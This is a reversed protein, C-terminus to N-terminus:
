NSHAYRNDKEPSQDNDLRPTGELSRPELEELPLQMVAYVAYVWAFVVLFQTSTPSPLPQFLLHLM